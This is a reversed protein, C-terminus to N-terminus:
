CSKGPASLAVGAARDDNPWWLLLGALAIFWAFPRVMWVAHLLTHNVFV